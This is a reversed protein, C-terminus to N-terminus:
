ARSSRRGNGAVQREPPQSVFGYRRVTQRQLRPQPNGTPGGVNFPNTGTNATTTAVRLAFTASTGTYGATLAISAAQLDSASSVSTLDLAFAPAITGIGVNGTTSDVVLANTKVALGGAFTSTATTSTATIYNVTPSTSAALVGTGGKSFLWGQGFTAAGTGGSGIGLPSGLILSNFNAGIVFLSTTTAASGTANAFTFNQLTTSANALLQQFSSVATTSTAVVYPVTIAGSLTQAGAVTLNGSLTLDTGALAATLIGGSLPLYNSATINTPIEAATLGSVGDLTANSITVNNLQDIRQSPAFAQTSIPTSAPPGSFSLAGWLQSRLASLAADLEGHTVTDLASTAAGLVRGPADVSSRVHTATKTVAVTASTAGPSPHEVSSLDPLQQTTRTATKPTSTPSTATAAAASQSGHPVRVHSMSTAPMPLLSNGLATSLQSAGSAVAGSASIILAVFAAILNHLM